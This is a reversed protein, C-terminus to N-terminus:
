HAEKESHDMFFVTLQRKSFEGRAVSMMTDYLLDEPCDFVYDNIDLFVLSAALATRKNGDIFPHNECLHFAYAAAMEPITTHLYKGAYTSEPMALASSLLPTDRIGYSGGYRRIQDQYILLVEAMSLFRIKRM